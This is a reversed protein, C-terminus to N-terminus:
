ESEEGVDYVLTHLRPRQPMEVDPVRVQGYAPADESRWTRASVEARLRRVEALLRAVDAPAAAIAAVDADSRPDPGEMRWHWDIYDDFYTDVKWPGPTAAEWRREIEDIWTNM